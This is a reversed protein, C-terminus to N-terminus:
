RELDFDDNDLEKDEKSIENQYIVKKGYTISTINAFKFDDEQYGREDKINNEKLFDRVKEYSSSYEYGKYDANKLESLLRNFDYKFTIENNNYNITITINKADLDKISELIKKNTYIYDFENDKNEKIKDLYELQYEYVLLDKGLEEKNENIFKVAYDEVLKKPNDLYDIIINKNNYEESYRIKYASGASAMKVIPVIDEIFNSEIEKTAGAKRWSDLEKYKEQGLERYEEANKIVFDSIYEDIEKCLNTIVNEFNNQFISNDNPVIDSIQYSSNYLVNEIIDYYGVIEYDDQRLGKLEQKSYLIIFRDNYKEKHVKINRYKTEFSQDNSDNDKIFEVFNNKM